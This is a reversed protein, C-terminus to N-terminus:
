LDATVKFTMQANIELDQFFAEVKFTQGVYSKQREDAISNCEHNLMRLKPVSSSKLKCIVNTYSVASDKALYVLM